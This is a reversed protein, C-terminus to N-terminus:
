GENDLIVRPRMPPNVWRVEVGTRRAANEVTSMYHSDLEVPSAKQPGGACGVLLVSLILAFLPLFKKM